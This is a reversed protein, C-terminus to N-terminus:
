ALLDAEGNSCVLLTTPMDSLLGQYHRHFDVAHEEDPPQFGLFVVGADRSYAPLVTDFPDKSVVVMIDAEIRASRAMEAMAERAPERGAEDEIIRLLRIQAYRWEPNDTLLHALILMLSGNERGRWWVDIRGGERALPWGRDVVCLVNRGLLRIDRLHGIFPAVREAEQPWGLLVTNPKIPGISHAQVLVRVGEDFDRTVVVECHVDFGSEEMFKQVRELAAKRREALEDVEGTVLEAMSVIGRGAELWLAFQMLEPRTKPNGSLVLLTPRWNKPHPALGALQRLNRDVMSYLFGRRADGYRSRVDRRNIWAYLAGIIVVAVSAAQWNILVMAALCGLAGLLSTSWHFFRFKPRFSPNLGFSEVAAALNIMGYTCLFFMTVISAVVDFSELSEGRTAVWIVALSIVLTLWLARKPEDGKVTGRAFPKFLPIMRDRAMAQMVRPAGLFSGMASSLTAAFVGGMVFAGKGIPAHRLLTAFPQEILEQRTQAGGCLIMQLFYVLAGLGVAALTGRVLSRAPDKLDGSMNVGAMIGTVAPFYIAFVVWFGLDPSTYGPTWNAAFQAPNFHRAAGILFSLIGTFLIAMVVYQVKIAWGAGIYNIIFLVLTTGLAIYP